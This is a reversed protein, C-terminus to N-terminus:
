NSSKISILEYHAKRGRAIYSNIENLLWQYPDPIMTQEGILSDIKVWQNSSNKRLTFAHRDRAILIRDSEQLAEKYTALSKLTNILRDYERKAATLEEFTTSLSHYHPTFFGNIYKQGQKELSLLKQEYLEALQADRQSLHELRQFSRHLTDTSFAVINALPYSTHFDYYDLRTYKSELLGLSSLHQLHQFLEYVSNGQDSVYSNSQAGDFRIQNKLTQHSLFADKPEPCQLRHTFDIQTANELKLLSFTTEDIFPQGVFAHASHIICKGMDQQEHYFKGNVEINPTPTGFFTKSQPTNSRNLVVLKEQGSIPYHAADLFADSKNDYYVLSDNAENKIFIVESTPTILFLGPRGAALEPEITPSCVIALYDTLQTMNRIKGGLDTDFCFGAANFLELDNDLGYKQVADQMKSILTKETPSLVTSQSIDRKNTEASDVPIYQRLRKSSPHLPEM